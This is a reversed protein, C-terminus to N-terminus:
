LRDLQGELRERLHRTRDEVSQILGQHERRERFLEEAINLSTLILLNRFSIGENRARIAEVKEEVYGALNHVEQPNGGRLRFPEGLINVTITVIQDGAAM